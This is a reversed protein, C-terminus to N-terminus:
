RFFRSLWPLTLYIFSCILLGASWCALWLKKGKIGAVLLIVGIVIALLVSLLLMDHMNRTYPVDPDPPQGERYRM